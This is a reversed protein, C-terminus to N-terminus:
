RPPATTRRPSTTTFARVAHARGLTATFSDPKSPLLATSPRPEYLLASPGSCPRARLKGRPTIGYKSRDLAVFGGHIMGVSCINTIRRAVASDALIGRS